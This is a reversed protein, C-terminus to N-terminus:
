VTLEVFALTETEKSGAVEETDLFTAPVYYTSLFFINFAHIFSHCVSVSIPFSILISSVDILKRHTELDALDRPRTLGM